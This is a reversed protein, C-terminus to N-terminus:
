PKWVMCAAVTKVSVGYDEAIDQEDDGARYRDAIADIVRHTQDENIDGCLQCPGRKPLDRDLVTAAWTFDEHAILADSYFPTCIIVRVGVERVQWWGNSARRLDVERAGGSM